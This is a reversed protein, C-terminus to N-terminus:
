DLNLFNQLYRWHDILECCHKHMLKAVTLSPYRRKPCLFADIQTPFCTTTHVGQPPPKPSKELWKSSYFHKNRAFNYSLLTCHTTMPQSCNQWPYCRIFRWSQDIKQEFHAERPPTRYLLKSRGLGSVSMTFHKLADFSCLYWNCLIRLQKACNLPRYQHLVCM